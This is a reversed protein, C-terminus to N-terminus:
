MAVRQPFAQLVADAAREVIENRRESDPHAPLKGTAWGYWVPRRSARDFFYIALAGETYSRVSTGSFRFGVRGTDNAEIRDREGVSFAVLLDARAPERMQRYGKAALNREVAARVDQDLFPSMLTSQAVAGVRPRIMPQETIWAYTAYEAFSGREDRDHQAQIPAQCAAAFTTAVVLLIWRPM